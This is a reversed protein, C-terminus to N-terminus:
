EKDVKKKYLYIKIAYFASVLVIPIVIFYWNHKLFELAKEFFTMNKIREEEKKGDVIKVFEKDSVESMKNDNTKCIKENPNDLCYKTRSYVNYAPVVYEITRLKENPCASDSDGYLTFTYAKEDLHVYSGLAYSKYLSDYEVKYPVVSYSDSVMVKGGKYYPVLHLLYLYEKEIDSEIIIFGFNYNRAILKYECGNKLDFKNNSVYWLITEGNEKNFYISFNKILKKSNNEFIKIIGDVSFPEPIKNLSKIIKNIEKIIETEKM